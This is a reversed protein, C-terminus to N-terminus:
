KVWVSGNAGAGCWPNTNSIALGLRCSVSDADSYVAFSGAVLGDYNTTGFSNLGVHAGNPFPGYWTGGSYTPKAKSSMLVTSKFIDDTNFYGLATQDDNQMRYMTFTLSNIFADSYKFVSTQIPSTLAGVSATNRHDYGGAIARVIMTWGGGDTTMDCYAQIPTAGPKITYIGDKLGPTAALIEKCSTKYAGERVFLAHPNFTQSGQKASAAWEAGTCANGIGHYHRNFNWNAAFRNRSGFGGSLNTGSVYDAPESGWGVMAGHWSYTYTKTNDLINVSGGQDFYTGDDSPFIGVYLSTPTTGVACGSRYDLQDIGGSIIKGKMRNKADIMFKLSPSNAGHTWVIKKTPDTLSRIMLDKVPLNQYIGNHFTTQSNLYGVDGESAPFLWSSTASNASFSDTRDAGTSKFLLTWGGGDTTMDCYTAVPTANLNADIMYPGDIANPYDTKIELCSKYNAFLTLLTLGAPVNSTFANWGTMTRTPVFFDKNATNNTIRVLTGVISPAINFTGRNVKLGQTYDAAYLNSFVFFLILIKM